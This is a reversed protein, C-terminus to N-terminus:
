IILELKDYPIIIESMGMYYPAIQYYDFFIKLGENTFTFNKFNDKKPSTGDNFMDMVYGNGNFKGSLLLKDRSIKSLRDLIHEDKKILDDIVIFRNNDTDYNITHVFHAPHAGGTYTEIYFVYSIYNKYMYEDYNIYLDYYMNEQIYDNKTMKKFEIINDYILSKIKNNLNKYGSIPYYVKIKYKHQENMEKIRYENDFNVVLKDIDSNNYHVLFISTIYIFILFLYILKKKM